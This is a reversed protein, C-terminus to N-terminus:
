AQLSRPVVRYKVSTTTHEVNNVSKQHECATINALPVHRQVSNPSTHGSRPQSWTCCRQPYPLSGAGQWGHHVWPNYTGWPNGSPYGGGKPVRGGVMRGDM